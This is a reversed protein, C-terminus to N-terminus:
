LETSLAEGGSRTAWARWVQLDVHNSVPACHGDGFGVHVGSPHFSRASMLSAGTYVGHNTCDRWACNPPFAHYYACHRWVGSLWRSGVPADIFPGTLTPGGNNAAVCDPLMDESSHTLTMLPDRRRNQRDATGVLRESVFATQSLGDTVEAPRIFRFSVFVGDPDEPWLPLIGRCFRYSSARERTLEDSPCHLVAPASLPLFDWQSDVPNPAAWQV